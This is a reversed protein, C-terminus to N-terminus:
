HHLGIRETIFGFIVRLPKTIRWSKSALIQNLEEKKQKLEENMQNLTENKQNLEEKKQKLEKNTQNLEEKRHNIEENKSRLIEDVKQMPELERDGEITILDISDQVQIYIMPDLTEFSFFGDADLKGNSTLKAIPYKIFENESQKYTVSSIKVRCIRNETPDFRLHKIGTIGTLDFTLNFHTNKLEVNKSLVSNNDLFIYLNAMNGIHYDSFKNKENFLNALYGPDNEILKYSYYRCKEPQEKFNAMLYESNRNQTEILIKNIEPAFQNKMQDILEVWKATRYIIDKQEWIGGKHVRYIGMVDPIYRIKGFRANLMHLPYDGIPCKSYWEPFERILGNRFVCSASYIYNGRALDEITTVEKQNLPNSLHSEKTNEEYIVQMNHHCIAFDSNAELFDVQKQLKLPDTWYDDGECLAIYKGRAKPWVYTASVKIGKSYQNEKQLIATILEPHKKAYEEVIEATKDTSADDHIIIEIPFTTKQMLFGEIADRIFNV